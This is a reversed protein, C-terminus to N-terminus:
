KEELVAEQTLLIKSSGIKSENNSSAKAVFLRQKPRTYYLLGIGAFFLSFISIILWTSGISRWVYAM